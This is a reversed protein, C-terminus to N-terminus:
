KSQKSGIETHMKEFVLTQPKIGLKTLIALIDEVFQRPGCVYFYQNFNRITRKLYTEDIRLERYGIVQQRTFIKHFKSGLMATLEDELFIDQQYQNSLILSDGRIKRSQKLQRLIAIFPTIGSGGAIFVGDGKYQITGWPKGIILESGIGLKDMQQTIGDHDYYVKVMLELTAWKNLSTFTFPSKKDKFEQNNISVFTSQGPIFTYGKPKELVFRKVDDNLYETDLIKVVYEEM